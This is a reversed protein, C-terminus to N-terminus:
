GAAIRSDARRLVAPRARQASLDAARGADKGGDPGAHPVQPRTAARPGARDERGGTPQDRGQSRDLLQVGVVPAAAAAAVVVAAASRDDDFKKSSWRAFAMAPWRARASWPMTAGSSPGSGCATTAHM